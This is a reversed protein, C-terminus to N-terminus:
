GHFKASIGIRFDLARGAGNKKKSKKGINPLKKKSHLRQAMQMVEVLRDLLENKKQSMATTPEAETQTEVTQREVVPAMTQTSVHELAQLACQVADDVM